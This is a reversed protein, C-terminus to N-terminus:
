YIALEGTIGAQYKNMTRLDRSYTMKLRAKIMITEFSLSTGHNREIPEVFDLGSGSAPEASKNIPRDTWSSRTIAPEPLNPSLVM